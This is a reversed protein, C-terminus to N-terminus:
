KKSDSKKNASNIDEIKVDANHEIPKWEVKKFLATFCVPIYLFMYLPFTFLYMIKKWWSCPIKKWETICVLLAIFFMLAYMGVITLGLNTLAYLAAGYQGICAGVIACIPFFTATVMSAVLAPLMCTFMDWCAFNTFVGKLLRGYYQGCVQYYGKVWRELQRWASKLTAPQEDYLEATGCYGIKKKLIVSETTCQTDEILLHFRWNDYEEVLPKSILFGTGSITCSTGLIMRPNNLHRSDHLFWYGYGSTIWNKGFNKSNRYSTVMEYGSDFTKNMETIYNQKIINDADLIIYAEPVLDKYEEETHLKTFLYNLAYGKGIEKDNFREFVICGMNRCIEATNDTCNDAIVFINVLDKPYDNKQISEILNGIVKSENRASIVIGIKHQKFDKKKLKHVKFTGVIFYIYQHFYLVLFILSIVNTVWYIVYELTTSFTSLHGYKILDFFLLM